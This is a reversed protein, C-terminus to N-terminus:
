HLKSELDNWSERCYAWIQGILCRFFQCGIRLACTVKDTSQLILELRPEEKLPLQFLLMVDDQQSSVFLYWVHADGKDNRRLLQFLPSFFTVNTPNVIKDWDLQNRLPLKPIKITNNDLSSFQSRYLEAFSYHPFTDMFLYLNWCSANKCIDIEVKWRQLQHLHFMTSSFWNRLWTKSEENSQEIEQLMELIEQGTNNKNNKPSLFRAWCKLPLSLTKMVVISDDKNYKCSQTSMELIFLVWYDRISETERQAKSLIRLLQNATVLGVCTLKKANEHTYLEVNQEDLQRRWEGVLQRKSIENYKWEMEMSSFELLIPKKKEQVNVMMSHQLMWKAINTRDRSQQSQNWRQVIYEGQLYELTWASWLFHLFSMNEWCQTKTIDDWSLMCEMPWQQRHSVHLELGIDRPNSGFQIRWVNQHRWEMVQATTWNAIDLKELSELCFTAMDDLLIWSPFCCYNRFYLQLYKELMEIMWDHFRIWHKWLRRSKSHPIRDYMELCVQNCCSVKAIVRIKEQKGDYEFRLWQPNDQNSPKLPHYGCSTLMDMMCKMALTTYYELQSQTDFLPYGDEINPLLSWRHPKWDIVKQLSSSIWRGHNWLANDKHMEVMMTWAINRKIQQLMYYGLRCGINQVVTAEEHSMWQMPYLSLLFLSIANEKRNMVVILGMLLWEEERQIENDDDRKRIKKVFSLREKDEGCYGCSNWDAVKNREIEESNHVMLWSHEGGGQKDEQSGIANKMWDANLIVENLNGYAVLNAKITRGDVLTAFQWLSDNVHFVPCKRNEGFWVQQDYKYWDWVVDMACYSAFATAISVDLLLKTTEEKNGHPYYLKIQNSVLQLCVVLPYKAGIWWCWSNSHHKTGNWGDVLSDHAQPHAPQSPFFGNEEERWTFWGLVKELRQKWTQWVRHAACSNPLIWCHRAEEWLSIRIKETHHFGFSLFQIGDCDWLAHNGKTQWLFFSLRSATCFNWIELREHTKWLPELLYPKWPFIGMGICMVKVAQIKSDNGVVPVFSFLLFSSRREHQNVFVLLYDKGIISGPYLSLLFNKAQEIVPLDDVKKPIMVFLLFPCEKWWGDSTKQSQELWRVIDSSHSSSFSYFWLQECALLSNWRRFSIDKKKCHIDKCRLQLHVVFYDSSTCSSEEKKHLDIHCIVLWYENLLLYFQLYQVDGTSARIPNSEEHWPVFGQQIHWQIFVQLWYGDDRDEYKWSGFTAIIQYVNKKKKEDDDEQFSLSGPQRNWLQGNSILELQNSNWINGGYALCVVRLSNPLPEEISTLVHVLDLCLGKRSMLKFVDKSEDNSSSLTISSPSFTILLLRRFSELVDSHRHDNSMSSDSNGGYICCLVLLDYLDVGYFPFGHKQLYPIYVSEIQQELMTLSETEFLSWCREDTHDGQSDCFSLIRCCLVGRQEFVVLSKISSLKKSPFLSGLHQLTRATDQIIRHFGSCPPYSDQLSSCFPTLLIVVDIHFYTTERERTQGHSSISWSSKELCRIPPPAQQM